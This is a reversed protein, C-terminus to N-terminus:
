SAVSTPLQDNTPELLGTLFSHSTIYLIYQSELTHYLSFGLIKNFSQETEIDSSLLVVFVGVAVTFIKLRSRPYDTSM